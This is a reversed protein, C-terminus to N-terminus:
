ARWALMVRSIESILAPLAASSYLNKVYFFLGRSANRLNLNALRPSPQPNSTEVSTTARIRTPREVM